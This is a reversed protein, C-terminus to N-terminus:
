VSYNTRLGKGSLLPASASQGHTPTAVMVVPVRDPRFPTTNLPHMPSLIGNPANDSTEVTQYEDRQKNMYKKVGVLAGVTLLAFASTIAASMFGHKSSVQATGTMKGVQM